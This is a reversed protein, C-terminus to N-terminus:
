PNKAEMAKAFAEFAQLAGPNALTGPGMELRSSIGMLLKKVPVELKKGSLTRPVEPVQYIEDPQHRPSLREIICRRIKQKLIENLTQGERLVVFLPLFYGGNPRELGVALSDVVEPLEGVAAYLEATGIRVGQRNLTADSRGYIVAGGHKNFSIWDGHRWLGPYTDFYSALYRVNGADNWFFLPMSPMPAAIVLEGAEGILSHGDADLARVDAGLMRAQLEGEYVPLLPCGGVFATCLDTGGSTSSLWVDSGVAEYVWRFGEPSLPSGTSGIARLRSLDRTKGLELGAKVCATIFGASAGFVNVGTREALAWLVNLDPYNPSGDYLVVSSGVLLGGVLLNWMMWGTTTFWFFRDGSHLDLHFANMKLHELMIGGHGQVIAKPLGTTGSSYLIWLPHDFPVPTFRLEAAERPLEGFRTAGDLSADTNLYPILVTHQLSPIENMLARVVPLREFDKGGYRYGDVAFLVKPEIQKFRDLVAKEGFEPPASSWVAGLSAAALFAVVAEPANPLYGVVRDGQEVGMRRLATAVVAVQRRLTAWSMQGEGRTESAWILAPHDKQEASFVQEAYNLTAGEFWRAGPMAREALVRSYPAHAHVEFYRWLSEWFLELQETSWRWLAPYSTFELGLHNRLWQMYDHLRTQQIWTESPQWLMKPQPEQNIM